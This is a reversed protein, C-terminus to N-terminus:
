EYYIKEKLQKYLVKGESAIVTDGEKITVLKMDFLFNCIIKHKAPRWISRSDAQFQYREGSKTFWCRRLDNKAYMAKDHKQIAYRDLLFKLLDPVTYDKISDIDRFFEEFWYDDILRMRVMSYRDDENIEKYKYHLLAMIMLLNAYLHSINEIAIDSLVDELFWKDPFNVKNVCSELENFTLSYYDIGMKLIEETKNNFIEMSVDSVVEDLMLGNASGSLRKLFFCFYESIWWRFYVQTEYMMWYFATEDLCSSLEIQIIGNKSQIRKYYLINRLVTEDFSIERKNCEMICELYITLSDRRKDVVKKDELHFLVNKYFDREAKHYVDTINDYENAKAWNKLVKGPVVQKGKYFLYYEFNSYNEVMIEYLEKGFETLRIIGKEDVYILGWNQVTGKYYQGFAGLPQSPLLKFSCNYEKEEYDVMYKMVQTGYISYNGVLTKPKLLYTGVALASERIRFAEEFEYYKDCNMTYEIDGIAWCCYSIYRLRDTTSVIGKILYDEMHDHFRNLLLPYRGGNEIKVEDTWFPSWKIM